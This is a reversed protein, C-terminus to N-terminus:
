ECEKKLHQIFRDKAKWIGFFVYFTLFAYAGFLLYGGCMVLNNWTMFEFVNEMFNEKCLGPPHGRQRL